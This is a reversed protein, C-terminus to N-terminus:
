RWFLSNSHANFDAGCGSEKNTIPTDVVATVIRREKPMSIAMTTTTTTNIIITITDGM